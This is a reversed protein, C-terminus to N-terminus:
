ISVAFAGEGSIGDFTYEAANDMGDIPRAGVVRGRALTVDGVDISAPDIPENWFVQFTTFPLEVVEGNAPITAEVELPVADYRFNANWARLERNPLPVDPRAEIAGQAISMEQLGQDTVPSVDFTFTLRTESTMEVHDAAINNVVLDDAE